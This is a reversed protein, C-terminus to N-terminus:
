KSLQVTETDQESGCVRPACAFINGQILADGRKFAINQANVRVVITQKSDTCGVETSGFGSAIDKGFRETVSVDVFASGSAGACEIQLTVDLGAGKAVLTAPSQVQIELLLPPSFFAVAPGAPGAAAIVAGAAIAVAALGTTALGKRTRFRRPIM